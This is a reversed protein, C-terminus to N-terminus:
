PKSDRRLSSSSIPAHRTSPCRVSVSKSRPAQLTSLKSDKDNLQVGMDELQKKLRAVDAKAADLQDQTTKHEQALTNYKQLQAQWEEESYGCGSFMTGLAPLVLLPLIRPIRRLM